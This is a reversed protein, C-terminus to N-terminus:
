YNYLNHDISYEIGRNHRGEEDFIVPNSTRLSVSIKLNRKVKRTIKLHRVKNNKM